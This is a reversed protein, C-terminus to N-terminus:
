QKCFVCVTFLYLNKDKILDNTSHTNKKFPINYTLYKWNKIFVLLQKSIKTQDPTHLHLQFIPLFQLDLVTENRSINGSCVKKKKIQIILQSTRYRFDHKIM